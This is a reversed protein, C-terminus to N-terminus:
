KSCIGFCMLFFWIVLFLLFVHFLIHKVILQILLYKGGVVQYLLNLRNEGIFDTASYTVAEGHHQIIFSTDSINKSLELVPKTGGEVDAMKSLFSGYTGRTLTEKDLISLLGTEQLLLLIM